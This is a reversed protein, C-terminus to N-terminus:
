PMTVLQLRAIVSDGVCRGLAQGGANGAPYHIGGYIRSMGAEDSAARFSPFQRVAHGLSVSTSDSFPVAGLMATIAAAAAASQTSHGSPYEPFPPTPILPEWTSDIMRRIYTRPRVLNYQYKYGWVAIFADAQAIATGLVLRAADDVNLQRESIMQSAISLWHGVPTGSEGANDAWYLATTRQEPTLSRKTEFVARANLFLVSTDATGYNPPAPVPCANWARLAFPRVERWYPESTGSMNVAPMTKGSTAKPRSLILGRDSANDARQQNAPNDLAIFESAGSINQTAYNSAPSDNVWLGDGVPVAYPRGRTGDFGDARSWAIIALGIRRGLSDSSARMSSSVGHSEADHVLSDALRSVAARTTPLAERLLLDLVVREAVVAVVTADVKNADIARPLEPLGNLMGTLPSMDTHVAALGAYLATAAYATLRSARPASLREVRIVGYLTRVWASILSGDRERSGSCGFTGILLLALTLCVRLPLHGPIRTRRSSAM